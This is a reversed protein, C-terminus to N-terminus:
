QSAASSIRAQAVLGDLVQDCALADGTAPSNRSWLGQPIVGDDVPHEILCLRWERGFRAFAYCSATEHIVLDGMCGIKQGPPM